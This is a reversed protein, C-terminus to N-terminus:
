LASFFAVTLAASVTATRVHDKQLLGRVQARMNGVLQLAEDSLRAAAAKQLVEFYEAQHTQVRQVEEELAKRYDETEGEDQEGEPNLSSLVSAQPTASEAAASSAADGDTAQKSATSDAAPPAESVVARGADEVTKQFSEFDDSATTSLSRREFHVPAGVRPRVRTAQLASRVLRSGARRTLFM